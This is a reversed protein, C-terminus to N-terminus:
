NNNANTTLGVPTRGEITVDAVSRRGIYAGSPSRYCVAYSWVARGEPLDHHDTYRARVTSGITEEGTGDNRDCKIEALDVNSLSRPSRFNLIVEGGTFRATLAPDLTSPDPASSQTPLVGFLRAYAETFNPQQRLLAVQKGIVGMLGSLPIATNPPMTPTIARPPTFADHSTNFLLINFVATNSRSAAAANERAAVVGLLAEWAQQMRHASFIGQAFFVPQFQQANAVAIKVYNDMWNRFEAWTTPVFSPRSQNLAYATGLLNASMAFEETPNEDLAPAHEHKIHKM